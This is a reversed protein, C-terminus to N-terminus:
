LSQVYANFAKTALSAGGVTDLSFGATPKGVAVGVGAAFKGQLMSSVQNTALPKVTAATVVGGDVTVTVEMEEAGAPSQYGVVKTSTKASTPAPAKTGTTTTTTSTGITTTDADPNTTSVSVGPAKVETGTATTNVSTGPATVSVDTASGTSSAEQTTTPTDASVPATEPASQTKEVSPAEPTPAAPAGCSVLMGTLTVTALAPIIKKM